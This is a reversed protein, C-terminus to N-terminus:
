EGGEDKHADLELPAQVPQAGNEMEAIAAAVAPFPPTQGDMLGAAKILAAIESHTMDETETKAYLAVAIVLEEAHYYLLRYGGSKGRGEGKLRLKYTPTEIGPIQKGRTPNDKLDALAEDVTKEVSRYKRALRKVEKDFRETRRTACPPM